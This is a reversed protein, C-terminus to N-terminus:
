ADPWEKAANEFWSRYREIFRDGDSTLYIREEEFEGEVRIMKCRELLNMDDRIQVLTAAKHAFALRIPGPQQIDRKILWLMRKQRNNLRIRLYPDRLRSNSMFMDLLRDLWGVWQTASM